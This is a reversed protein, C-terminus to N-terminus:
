GEREILTLTERLISGFDHRSPSVFSLLALDEEDLELCGLSRAQDTDKTLLARLLFFPQIDLPMVRDFIEVPLIPRLSGFSSTTFDYQGRRL